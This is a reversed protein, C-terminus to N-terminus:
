STTGVLKRIQESKVEGQLVELLKGQEDFFYLAPPVMIPRQKKYPEAKDAQSDMHIREVDVGAPPYGLVDTLARWSKDIRKRTCDCCQEKDVFVIRTVRTGAVKKTKSAPAVGVTAPAERKCSLLGTALALLVLAVSRDIHIRM